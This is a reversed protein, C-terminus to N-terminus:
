EIYQCGEYASPVKKQSFEHRLDDISTFKDVAKIYCCPMVQDYINYFRHLDHDLFKCSYKKIPKQPPNTYQQHMNDGFVQRYTKIYDEKMQLRQVSHRLGLSKAFATIDDVKQGIFVSFICIRYPGMKQALARVNNVVKRLNYRGIKESLEPNLSDVSVGITPFLKDFKDVDIKTGDTIVYPVHGHAYVAEVIDWFRKHLTPESEGQLNVTHKGPTLSKIIDIIKEYPMDKQVMQRGACYFCDFNCRTTLEIQCHM